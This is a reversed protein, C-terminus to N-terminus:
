ADDRPRPSGSGRRLTAADQALAQIQSWDGAHIASAPAVWSGGVCLVAPLALFAPADDRTIGGTPCFRVQPFPAALAKIMALGGAQMAPFLKFTDYGLSLGALLESPTMVGPLLPLGAHVAADALQATLGPSVGFQAGAATAAIIDQPSTLTGVGIIAQPVAERMATIASLAAETRLTVELVTLGGACLAQALPAAHELRDITLVPIVPSRALISRMTM